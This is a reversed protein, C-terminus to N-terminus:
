MHRTKRLSISCNENGIIKLLDKLEQIEYRPIISSKNVVGRPNYWCTDIGYNNGGQIDSSLSDGVILVEKKDPEDLRMFAYDFIEKHPKQSKADDSVIIQEFANALESHKIRRLQVERIGNTIIALRIGMTILRNCLDLAGNNLYSGEALYNIYINSFEGPDVGMALQNEIFLRHFREIRLRDLKLMGKEYEDWLQQNIRRYCSTLDSNWELGFDSCTCELASAECKSYDFLTDDADFLVIKYSM